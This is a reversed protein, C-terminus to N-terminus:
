ATAAAERPPRTAAMSPRASMRRWWGRWRPRADLLREGEATLRFLAIMPAAHLDALTLAGGLFYPEGQMLEEIAALCTEARPLAEAIKSEGVEAGAAPLEARAVFIDWVWTRYAYCDLISVIQNVRARAQPTAPMLAPGPFAEDIYRTIAGAEYLRFGDHEFAPIRGFPHRRRYEPPPGGDAFVDVEQLRYPVGKEELALRVARVYVSYGAGFVTPTGM